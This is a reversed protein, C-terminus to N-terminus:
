VLVNPLEKLNLKGKKILQIIIAGLEYLQRSSPDPFLIYLTIM